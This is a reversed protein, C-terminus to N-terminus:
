VCLKLFASAGSMAGGYERAKRSGVSSKVSKPMLVFCDLLIRRLIKIKVSEMSIPYVAATSGTLLSTFLLIRYRHCIRVEPITIQRSFESSVTGHQDTEKIKGSISLEDGIIKVNLDEPQYGEIELKVEFEKANQKIQFSVFHHMNIRLSHSPTM